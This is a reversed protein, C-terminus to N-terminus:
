PSLVEVRMIIVLERLSSQTSRSKFLWGLGPLGGLAPVTQDDGSADKDILGGIIITDGDRVRVNTNVNRVSVTPLTIENDGLSVKNSLDVESNIPFIQLDVSRNDTIFPVVGLMVGEFASSTQTSYSRENTETDVTETIERIYNQTTGSTVLAPQGHKARVHPNSITKVDGFTQLAQVTASFQDSEQFSSDDVNDQIILRRPQSKLNESFGYTGLGTEAMKGLNISAGLSNQIKQGVYSWDIGLDFSDSLKVEMIQADISVQLSMKTKLQEVLRSVRKMKGPTTKVYLSGSVPDIQSSGGEGAGSELISRVNRQLHGYLSDDAVGQALSTDMSFDGTLDGGGANGNNGTGTNGFIDGGSQIDAQTTTNLFDLDFRRETFRRVYLCNRDVEWALDYARLLKDVVVSSPAESFSITVEEQLAVGPEIVLDLGANRAVTYLIGQLPEQQVSLSISVEELPNYEPTVPELSPEQRASRQQLERRERKRIEGLKEQEKQMKQSLEAYSQEQSDKDKTTACGYAGLALLLLVAGLFLLRVPGSRTRGAGAPHRSASRGSSTGARPSPVIPPEPTSHRM